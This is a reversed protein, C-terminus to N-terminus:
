NKSPCSLHLVQDPPGEASRVVTARYGNLHEVRLIPVESRTGECWPEACDLEFTGTYATWVKEKKKPRTEKKFAATFAPTGSLSKLTASGDDAEVLSCTGQPPGSNEFQLIGCECTEGEPKATCAVLVSVLAVGLTRVFTPRLPM